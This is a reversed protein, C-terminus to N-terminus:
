RKRRWYQLVLTVFFSVVAGLAALIITKLLDHVGLQTVFSLLAGSGTGISLQLGARM